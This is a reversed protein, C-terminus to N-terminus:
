GGVVSISAERDRMSADGLPLRLTFVSGKGVPNEGYSISGGHAEAIRASIALGLGLGATDRSDQSDLKSFLKFLAGRDKKHVGRGFDTVAVEAHGDDARLRVHVEPAGDSYKVANFLLNDILQRIRLPDVWADIEPLEDPILVHVGRVSALTDADRVAARVTEDVEVLSFELPMLGRELLAADMLDSVISSLRAAASAIARIAEHSEESLDGLEEEELMEAYLRVVSLPTRLEHSAVAVFDSKMRAIEELAEKARAQDEYAEELRAYSEKLQQEKESLDRIMQDFAVALEGIEDGRGNDLTIDRRGESLQLAGDRLEAVPEVVTRLVLWATWPASVLAVSMVVILAAIFHGGLVESLDPPAFQTVVTGIQFGDVVVPAEIVQAQTLIGFASQTGGPLDCVQGDPSSGIIIAGTGDLVQICRITEADSGLLVSDMLAQVREIDQDAIMPTLAAATARSIQELSDRRSNAALTASYVGVTLGVALGFVLEGILVWTVWRVRLSSQPPRGRLGRIWTSLSRLAIRGV